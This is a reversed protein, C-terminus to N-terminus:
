EETCYTWKKRFLLVRSISVISFQIVYHSRYSLILCKRKALFSWIGWKKNQIPYYKVLHSVLFDREYFLMIMELCTQTMKNNNTKKNWINKGITLHYFIHMKDNFVRTSYQKSNLQLADWDRNLSMANIRSM